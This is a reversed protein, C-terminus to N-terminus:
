PIESLNCPDNRKHRRDRVRDAYIKWLVGIQTYIGWGYCLYTNELCKSLMHTRILSVVGSLLLWAAHLESLLIFFAIKTGNDKM